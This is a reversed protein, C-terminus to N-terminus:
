PPPGRDHWIVQRQGLGDLPHGPEHLEDGAVLGQPREEPLGELLQCLVM